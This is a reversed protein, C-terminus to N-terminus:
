RYEKGAFEEAFAQLESLRKVRKIQKANEEPESSGKCLYFWIEKLKFLVDREGSLVESYERILTKQFGLLENGKNESAQEERIEGFIWPNSLAGRGIMVAHLDPVAEMLKRYDEATNIDGNYCLTHRSNRYAQLFVNRHPTNKYYDKLLRPHITLEKIPYKEFVRFLAEYEAEDEIGIRMKVSIPIPCDMFICELFTELKMRNEMSLFGAGKGKTTVTGSPCGLNLNVETYGLKALYKATDTFADYNNTLIQPVIDLGTNHEPLVDNREKTRLIVHSDPAIFPTFLRDPAPFYSCFARRFIHGTIGEMPAFYLLPKTEESAMTKM